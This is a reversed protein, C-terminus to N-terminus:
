EYRLAVMPDVRTARWAPVYCALLAWAILIAAVSALTAPDGPSVGFLLNMLLRMAALAVAVGAAVGFIALRLGERLVLRLVDARQAGLTLRIGIENTRQAVSYSMVGYTGIMALLLALGAFIALLTSDLRPQALSDAVYDDMRKVDYIPVDKDIAKVQERIASVMNASPAGTRVVGSMWPLGMQDEPIYVEPDDPQSLGLHKVDGVVGVIERMPPKGATSIGPKIRKGVPDEGPFATDALKKNVIVVPTSGTRDAETFARGKLLPIRMTRFYDLAVTRVHASPEESKPVPRGDVQYATRIVDGGLPLPEIGSAADVGPLVRIREFLRRFFDQAQEPKPYSGDPLSLQFTLVAHPDFGPPVQKLRLLSKMLLGAGSLLVVALTMETVVLLHRLRTHRVSPGVGRGSGKLSETLETKSLHLAPAIGFLMGTALAALLTFALVPAALRTESLRPIAETSLKAFFDAGWAAIVLGCAGGAVSLMGSEILLQRIIRGRGAGLAARIAIERQRLTARALLLNAVNACAILLVLAVAGLLIFIHARVTGVLGDLASEARLGNHANTDPYQKALRGAVVITEQNARSLAIGPKLRALARLFHAGREATIPKDGISTAMSSFTTWLEPPDNGLPFVFGAPMVGLITYSSGDIMVSRGIVTQEGGFQSQWLRQSLIVVYNGPADEGPQFARGLIPHVGLVSFMNSTVTASRAHRPEGAGTLTSTNDTYAAVSEFVTNQAQLDEFDPYSLAGRFDGLKESTRWIAALREPQPFPLPNLLVANVVSFIATNAGIGLTLTLVAVGTFGPSKALMRLGYRLDQLLTEM